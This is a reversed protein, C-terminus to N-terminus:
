RTTNESNTKIRRANERGWFDGNNTPWPDTAPKLLAAANLGQAAAAPVYVGLTLLLTLTATGIRGGGAGICSLGLKMVSITRTLRRLSLKIAGCFQSLM